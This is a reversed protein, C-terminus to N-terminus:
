WNQTGHKWRWDSISMKALPTAAPGTSLAARAEQELGWREKAVRKKVESFHSAKMDELEIQLRRVSRSTMWSFLAGGLYGAALSILFYLLDLIM